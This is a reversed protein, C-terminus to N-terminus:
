RRKPLVVWWGSISSSSSSSSSIVINSFLIIFIYIFSRMLFNDGSAITGVRAEGPETPYSRYLVSVILMPAWSLPITLVPIAAVIGMPTYPRMAGREPRATFCPIWVPAPTM